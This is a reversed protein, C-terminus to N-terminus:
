QDAVYFVIQFEEKTQRYGSEIVKLAFEPSIANQNLVKIFDKMIFYIRIESGYRKAREEDLIEKEVQEVDFDVTPEKCTLDM